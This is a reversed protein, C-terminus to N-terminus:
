REASIKDIWENIDEQTVDDIKSHTVSFGDSIVNANPELNKITSIGGRIGSGGSSNFPIITKGSFDYEDFFSYMAMPIDSYWAPFGVYVTKYKDFNDIHSILEPRANNEKEKSTYIDLENNDTNDYDAPYKIKTQVSHLDGGTKKQILEALYEVNGQLKGDKSLISASSVADVDPPLETNDIRTFYVILVGDNIGIVTNKGSEESVVTTNANINTDPNAAKDATTGCATFVVTVAALVVSFIKFSM